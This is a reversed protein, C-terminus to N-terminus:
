APDTEGRAPEVDAPPAYPSKPRPAYARPGPIGEFDRTNRVEYDRFVLWGGRRPGQRPLPPGSPPPNPWTRRIDRRWAEDKACPACLMIADVEEPWRWTREGCATCAGFVRLVRWAHTQEDWAYSENPHHPYPTAAM